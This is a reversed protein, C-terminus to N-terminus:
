TARSRRCSSRLGVACPPPPPPPPAPTRSSRRARARPSASDRPRAIPPSRLGCVRAPACTSRNFSPFFRQGGIDRGQTYVFDAPRGIRPRAWRYGAALNALHEPLWVDDEDLRAVHTAEAAAEAMDLAANLANTGACKWVGLRPPPPPPPPPSAGAPQPFDWDFKSDRNRYIREERFRADTNAFRVRPSPIGALAVARLVRAADAPALGDGVAVLTWHPHTQRALSSLSTELPIVFHPDFDRKFFTMVVAFHIAEGHHPRPAAPAARSLGMALEHQKGLFQSSFPSLFPNMVREDKRRRFIYVQGRDHDTQKSPFIGWPDLYQWKHIAIKSVIEDVFAPVDRVTHPDGDYDDFILFGGTNLFDHVNYFLKAVEDMNHDGDIFIIDAM